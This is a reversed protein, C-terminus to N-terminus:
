DEEPNEQWVPKLDTLRENEGPATTNVDSELSNGEQNGESNDASSESAKATPSTPMAAAYRKAFAPDTEFARKAADETELEDLARLTPLTSLDDMSFTELFFSTTGYLLPRGPEDKKGVIRILGRELLSRVVGGCDVGRVSEVDLRTCPQRYAVVALAELAAKSLRVKREPWLRRVMESYNPSTRFRWGGSVSVLEIGRQADYDLQMAYLTDELIKPHVRFPWEEDDAALNLLDVLLESRLPGDAALLLAALVGRLQNQQEKDLTAM